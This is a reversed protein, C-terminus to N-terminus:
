VYYGTMMLHEAFAVMITTAANAAIITVILKKRSKADNRLLCYVVPLEMTITLLLFIGNLIYTPGADLKQQFTGYWPDTVLLIFFPFLFSFANAAAVVATTKLLRGTDSILWIALVEVVITAMAVPPLVDFPRTDTLWMWSSNAFVTKSVALTIIEKNM